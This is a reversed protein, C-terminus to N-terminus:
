VFLCVFLFCYLFFFLGSLIACMERIQAAMRKAKNGYYLIDIKDTYESVNLAAQLLRLLKREELTLRLPIWRSREM